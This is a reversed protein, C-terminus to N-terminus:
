EIRLQVKRTSPLQEATSIFPVVQQKDGGQIQKRKWLLEKLNQQNATFCSQFAFFDYGTMVCKASQYMTYYDMGVGHFTM